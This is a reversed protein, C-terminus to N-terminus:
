NFISHLGVLSSNFGFTLIISWVIAGLCMWFLLRVAPAGFALGLVTGLPAGTVLPSLLGLGPIGYRVWIKYTTKNALSSAHNQYRKYISNRLTISLIGAGLIGVMNGIGAALCILGPDLKLALGMPIAGWLAVAALAAVTIIKATLM